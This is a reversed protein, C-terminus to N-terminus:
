IHIPASFWQETKFVVKANCTYYTDLKKNWLPEDLYPCMVEVEKLKPKIDGDRSPSFLLKKSTSHVIM